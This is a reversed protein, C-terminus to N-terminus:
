RAAGAPRVQRQFPIRGHLQACSSHDHQGLAARATAGTRHQVDDQQQDAQEQDQQHQDLAALAATQGPREAAGAAGAGEAGAGAVGERADGDVDGGDPDQEDHDDDLEHLGGRRERAGAPWTCGSGQRDAPRSRATLRVSASGVPAAIVCAAIHRMGAASRAREGPFSTPTSNLM